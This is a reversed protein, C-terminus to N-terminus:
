AADDLKKMPGPGRQPSAAPKIPVASAVSEGEGGAITEVSKMIIEILQFHPRPAVGPGANGAALIQIFVFDL